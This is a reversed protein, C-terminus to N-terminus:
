AAGGYTKKNVFYKMIAMGVLLIIMLIFAIIDSFIDVTATGITINFQLILMFIGVLVFTINKKNMIIEMRLVCTSAFRTRKQTSPNNAANEVCVIYYM